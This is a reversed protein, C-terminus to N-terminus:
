FQNIMRIMIHVFLLCMTFRKKKKFFFGCVFFRVCICKRQMNSLLAPLFELERPIKKWKCFGKRRKHCLWKTKTKTKQDAQIEKTQIAVCTRRVCLAWYFVPRSWLYGTRVSRDVFRRSWGRGLCVTGDLIFLISYM